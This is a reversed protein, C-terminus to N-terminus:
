SPRKAHCIYGLTFKYDRDLPDFIPLVLAAPVVFIAAPIFLIWRAGTTFFQLGNLLRRSLLRFYGGVPVIHIQKFGSQELLHYLGHRTYRFYDHPTQHLEWELPAALLLSGGPKLTRALEGLVARPDRVHELTVINIVADFAASALPLAALDAIADVGSYSWTEDGVGLDVGIYRRGSFYKAYRGEGAGADLVLSGPPLAAAFKSIAREIESEFQLIHSRLFRPLRNALATANM